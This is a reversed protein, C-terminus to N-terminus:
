GQGRVADIPRVADVPRVADAPRVADVLGWELATCADIQRGTLAWFLMRRRGIRRAITVTGGAGPMLGM